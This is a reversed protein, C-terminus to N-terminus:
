GELSDIMRQAHSMEAVMRDRYNLWYDQRESLSLESIGQEDQWSGEVVAGLMRAEFLVPDLEEFCFNRLEVWYSLPKV